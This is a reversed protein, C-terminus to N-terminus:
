FAGDGFLLKTVFRSLHRRAQAGLTTFQKDVM